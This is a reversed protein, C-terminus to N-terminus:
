SCLEEELKSLEAIEDKHELLELLFNSLFYPDDEKMMYKTGIQLHNAGNKLFVLAHQPTSIGGCGIIRIRDELVDRLKSVVYLAFPRIAEGGIGGYRLKLLPTGREDVMLGPMTNIAVVGYPDFSSLVEAFGEFEEEGQMYGVKISYNRKMKPIGEVEELIRELLEEDKYVLSGVNPCSINLEVFVDGTKLLEECLLRYQSPIDMPETPDYAVSVILYSEPFERKVEGLIRKYYSLGPNKLGVANISTRELYYFNPEPNGPRPDLTISGIVVAQFPNSIIARKIEEKTKCAGAANTLLPYRAM